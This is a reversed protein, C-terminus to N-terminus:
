QWETLIERVIQEAIKEKESNCKKELLRSDSKASTQMEETIKQKEELFASQQQAKELKLKEATKDRLGDAKANAKLKYSASDQEAQEVIKNAEQEAMLINQFLKNINEM